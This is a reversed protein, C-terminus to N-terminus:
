SRGLHSQSFGTNSKSCGYQKLFSQAYPPITVGDSKKNADYAVALTDVKEYTVARANPDYDEVSNVSIYVASIAQAKKLDETTDDPLTIGNCSAILTTAQRCYVEKVADTLSDWTESTTLTAVYADIEVLTGFSDYNDAPYVILAM